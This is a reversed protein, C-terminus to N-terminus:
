SNEVHVKCVKRIYLLTFVLLIAAFGIFLYCMCAPPNAALGENFVSAKTGSLGIIEATLEGSSMQVFQSFGSIGLAMSTAFAFIAVFGHKLM